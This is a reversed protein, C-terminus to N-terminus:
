VLFSETEGTFPLIIIIPVCSLLFSIATWKIEINPIAGNELKFIKKGLISYFGWIAAALVLLVNGIINEPKFLLGLQFNTILIFMGIFGIIYGLFKQPLNTREGLIFIAYISIFLPYTSYLAAGINAQTYHLGIFYIINSIGLGLMSALIALFPHDKVIKITGNLDKQFVMILLLFLAGFFFRHFSLSVPGVGGQLLKVVIESFSWTFVGFFCMLYGKREEDM